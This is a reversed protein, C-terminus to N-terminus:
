RKIRRGLTSIGVLGLGLLLLTYPEARPNSDPGPQSVVEPVELLTSYLSTNEPMAMSSQGIDDGRNIVINPKDAAFAPGAIFALAAVVISLMANAPKRPKLIRM